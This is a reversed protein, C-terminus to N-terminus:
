RKSNLGLLPINESSTALNLWLLPSTSKRQDCCFLNTWLFGFRSIGLARQLELTGQWFPTKRYGEGLAFNTYEQQVSTADPYKELDHLDSYWGHTEKGVILLKLKSERYETSPTMFLPLSFGADRPLEQRLAELMPEYIGRLAGTLEPDQDM